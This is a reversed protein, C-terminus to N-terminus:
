GGDWPLQSAAIAATLARLLAVIGDPGDVILDAERELETVAETGARSCVTLGPTGAARLERIAAFAALDGLDDGCFMVARARRSAALRGLATGKDMGRPRLEIVMRGPEVALDARRALEELPARVRALAGDPDATRRTHVALAQEKDEVWTGAPAGARELLGPLEARALAVGPPPPPTELRGSEWRQLGYQGLVLLGPVDGFGGLEVAKEAPRGTIVAVTGVHGALGRLAAAAAPHAAAAGPDSVIPSLTGDFDLGVLAAAPDALLASLGDRGEATRPEPLGGRWPSLEPPPTV